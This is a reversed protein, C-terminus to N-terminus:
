VSPPYVVVSCKLALQRADAHPWSRANIFARDLTGLHVAFSFM